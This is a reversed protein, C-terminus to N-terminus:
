VGEVVLVTPSKYLVSRQVKKSYGLKEKFYFILADTLEDSARPDILISDILEHPDEIPMKVGANITKESATPIHLVVRYESEHTFANRKMFLLNAANSVDFQKTLEGQLSKAKANLDYQTLYEVEALRYKMGKHAACAAKLAAKLKKTSTSVRVGLHNPSYIRWMADSVGTSGGASRLCRPVIKIGFACRM